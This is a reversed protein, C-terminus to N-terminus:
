ALIKVTIKKSFDLEMNTPIKHSLPRLTTSIKRCQNLKISISKETEHLMGTESSQQPYSLATSGYCSLFRRRFLETNKWPWNIQYNDSKITPYFYTFALKNHIDEGIRQYENSNTAAGGGNLMNRTLRMTLAGWMTRGTVYPRTRQLNGVRGWGIHLPSCLRFIVRYALWNM